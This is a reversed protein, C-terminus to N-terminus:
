PEGRFPTRLGTGDIGFRKDLAYNDGKRTFYGEMVREPDGM